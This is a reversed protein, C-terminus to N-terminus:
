ATLWNELKLKPVRSFERTNNTVLTCNLSLAHGAIWMDNPGIPIGKRQLESRVKAYHTAVEAGLALAPVCRLLRELQAAIRTALPKMHTGLTLEGLTIVSIAVSQEPLTDLKDWLSGDRSRMIYSCIDTDLLYKM